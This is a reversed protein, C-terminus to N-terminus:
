APTIELYVTAVGLSGGVGEYIKRGLGYNAALATEAREKASAEDLVRAQGEAPPGLPKGRATCPAVRVHPDNRVRKVKAVNAESRVYLNGDGLGFWVPTPVPKGSLRYTVLLCYKHGRLHEFGSVTREEGAVSQASPHRIWDYFRNPLSTVGLFSSEIRL